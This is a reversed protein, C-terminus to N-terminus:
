RVPVQEWLHLENKIHNIKVCTQEQQFCECYASNYPCTQPILTGERPMAGHGLYKM